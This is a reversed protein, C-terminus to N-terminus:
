WLMANLLDATRDRKDGGYFGSFAKFFRMKSVFHPKENGNKDKCASRVNM